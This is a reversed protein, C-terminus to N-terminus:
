DGAGVPAPHHASVNASVRESAATRLPAVANPILSTVTGFIMVLVGIWIWSVLPNV